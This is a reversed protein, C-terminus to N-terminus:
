KAVDTGNCGTSWVDSARVVISGLWSQATVNDLQTFHYVLMM